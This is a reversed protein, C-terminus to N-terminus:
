FQRILEANTDEWEEIVSEGAEKIDKWYKEENKDVKGYELDKKIEDILKLMDRGQCGNSRVVAIKESIEDLDIKRTIVQKKQPEIEAEVMDIRAKHRSFGM